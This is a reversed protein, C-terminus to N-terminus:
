RWPYAQRMSRCGDQLCLSALFALEADSFGRPFQMKRGGRWRNSRLTGVVVLNAEPALVSTDNLVRVSAGTAIMHSNAIYTGVELNAALEAATGATGVVVVFPRAFVQRAPGSSHPGRETDQYAEPAALVCAWSGNAARVFHLAGAAMAVELRQGDIITVVVAGTPVDAAPAGAWGPVPAFEFRRVNHTGITWQPARGHGGPAVRLRSLRFPVHSQLIRFGHKGEFTAPNFSVVTFPETGPARVGHPALHKGLFDRVVPDFVVGGDNAIQTDWWWHEKGAIESLSM